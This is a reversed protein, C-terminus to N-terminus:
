VRRWAKKQFEEQAEVDAKAPIMGVRLPKMGLSKMFQRVQTPKRTIGTLQEIRACAEGITAPPHERFYGELAARHGALKSQPRHFNVETLREIRGELYEQLYRHFTAKSINCLRIIEQNAVGQSRLYLVEMKLQVHPHPHHFRYHRLAEIEDPTFEIEIM